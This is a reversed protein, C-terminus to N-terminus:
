NSNTRVATSYLLLILLVLSRFCFAPTSVGPINLRMVEEMNHPDPQLFLDIFDCCTISINQSEYTMASVQLMFEDPWNGELTFRGNIDTYTAVGLEKLEIKAGPISENNLGDKVVGTLQQAICMYGTMFLIFCSIKNM